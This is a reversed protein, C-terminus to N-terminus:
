CYIYNTVNQDLVLFVIFNESLNGQRILASTYLERRVILSTYIMIISANVIEAATIAIANIMVTIAM